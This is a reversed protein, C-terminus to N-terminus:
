LGYAEEDSLTQLPESLKAYIKGINGTVDTITSIDNNVDSLYYKCKDVVSHKSSYVQIARLFYPSHTNVLINISFDKSLLVILEAFVLQWEPHLHVEPEDLIITGNEQIINKQILTKLIAFSKLGTSINNFNYIKDNQKFILSGDKNKLINGNCVSSLKSFLEEFKKTIQIDNSVGIDSNQLIKEKLQERHNFIYSSSKDFPTDLMFPDDIYISESFIPIDNKNEYSIIEENSFKIILDNNKISLKIESNESSGISCIQGSFENRFERELYSKLLTDDDIDIISQIKSAIRSAIENVYNEPRRKIDTESLKELIFDKLLNNHRFDEINKLIYNTTDLLAQYGLSFRFMFPDLIQLISKKRDEYLKHEIDYFSNFISYLSKGITSKGTDNEGGIVTIGKIDIVANKIKGINKLTLVM